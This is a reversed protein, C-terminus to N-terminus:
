VKKVPNLTVPDIGRAVALDKWDTKGYQFHATEKFGGVWNGSWVLGQMDLKDKVCLVWLQLFLKEDWSAKGTKDLFFVDVALGYNHMSQWRKANTVKKKKLDDTRGIAYLADQEQPTRLGASVQPNLKAQYGLELMRNFLVEAKPECSLILKETKETQM